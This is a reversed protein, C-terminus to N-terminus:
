AAGAVDGDKMLELPAQVRARLLKKRRDTPHSAYEIVGVDGGEETLAWVIRSMTSFPIGLLKVLSALTHPKDDQAAAIAFVIRAETVTELKIQALWNAIALLQQANLVTLPQSAAPPTKGRRNQRGTATRASATSDSRM